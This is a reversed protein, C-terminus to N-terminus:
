LEWSPWLRPGWHKRRPVHAPTPHHELANPHFQESHWDVTVAERLEQLRCVEASPSLPKNCLMKLARGPNKRNHTPLAM